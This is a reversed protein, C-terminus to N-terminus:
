REEEFGCADNYIGNFADSYMTDPKYTTPEAVPEGWEFQISDLLMANLMKSKMEEKTIEKGPVDLWVYRLLRGYKDTESVDKQLYVEKVDKLYEKVIKSADAGEATNETRYGEPAVSEPTNIGILRVKYEENEIEVVITDGDVIRVLKAKQFDQLSDNEEVFENAWDTIQETMRSLDESNTFDTTRIIEDLVEPSESEVFCSQNFPTQESTIFEFNCATFSTTFVIMLTAILTKRKM